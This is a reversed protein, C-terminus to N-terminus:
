TKAHKPKEPKKKPEVESPTMQERKEAHLIILEEKIMQFAEWERAHIIAENLKDMRDAVTTEEEM